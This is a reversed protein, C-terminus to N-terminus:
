NMIIAVGGEKNRQNLFSSQFNRIIEDNSVTHNLWTEQIMYFHFTANALANNIACIKQKEALYQTNQSYLRIIEDEDKELIFQDVYNKDTAHEM